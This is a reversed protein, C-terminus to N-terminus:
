GLAAAFLDGGPAATRVAVGRAVLVDLHALTEMVALTQNFLDLTDLRHQHRTWPLETAVQYATAPNGTIAALSLELRHEHHALLEDVRAHASPAIPGHAPLLRLDPLGRLKTLSAMFDRLPSGAIASEFGISPTITPLVHDGAFLLGASQDAYVYHGQTHGPTHIAGLSRDGVAVTVDGELWRDPERWHQPDAPPPAWDGLAEIVPQAGAVRLQRWAAGGEGRRVMELTTRDGSGLVVQAGVEAGLVSALTYHDRHVHTVLISTIDGVGAGMAALGKELAERAEPVAWGGDILALGTPTAVAYVNVAKLGDMPLPLPIRHIGEDVLWAGPTAWHEGSDPSIAKSTSVSV